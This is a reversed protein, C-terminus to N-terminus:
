VVTGFNVNQSEGVRGTATRTGHLQLIAAPPVVDHACVSLVCRPLLCLRDAHNSSTPHTGNKRGGLKAFFTTTALGSNKRRRWCPAIVAAEEAGVAVPCRCRTRADREQTASRTRVAAHQVLRACHARTRCASCAELGFSRPARGRGASGQSTTCGCRAHGCGSEVTACRCRRRAKGGGVRASSCRPRSPTPERRRRRRASQWTSGSNHLEPEWEHQTGVSVRLRM